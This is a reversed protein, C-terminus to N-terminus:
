HSSTYEQLGKEHADKVTTFTTNQDQIKCTQWGLFGCLCRVSYCFRIKHLNPACNPKIPFSFLFSQRGRKRQSPFNGHSVTATSIVLSSHIERHRLM